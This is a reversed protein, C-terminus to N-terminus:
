IDLITEGNMNQKVNIQGNQEKIEVDGYDRPTYFRLTATRVGNEEKNKILNFGQQTYYDIYADVSSLKEQTEKPEEEIEKVSNEQTQPSDGIQDGQDAMKMELFGNINVCSIKKGISPLNETDKWNAMSFDLKVGDAFMLQGVKDNENYQFIMGISM